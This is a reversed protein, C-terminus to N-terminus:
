IQGSTGEDDEHWRQFEDDYIDLWTGEDPWTALPNPVRERLVNVLRHFYRTCTFHPGRIPFLLSVTM